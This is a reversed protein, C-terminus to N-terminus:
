LWDEYSAAKRYAIGETLTLAYEKNFVIELEIDSVENNNLYVRLTVETITASVGTLDFEEDLEKQLDDDLYFSSKELNFVAVGLAIQKYTRDDNISMGLIPTILNLSKSQESEPITIQLNTM